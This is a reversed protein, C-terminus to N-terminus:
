TSRGRAASLVAAFTLVIGAVLTWQVTATGVPAVLDIILASSLQGAISVLAFVLVGYRPVAWAATMIFVVGLAGGLYMWWPGTTPATVATGQIAVGIGVAVALGLTGFVFNVWTTSVPQRTVVNTRGNIAQQVSTLAGATVAALVAFLSFDVAGLRGSAAIIVGVATLIAAVLRQPTIAVKGLPGLGSRDVALSSLSQGAVTSVAFLAVGGLAVAFSQSAIFAGGLFGGLTAWWPLQGDRVARPVRLVGQRASPVVLVIVTLIALGTLFSVLAAQVGNAMHRALEGNVRAQLSTTLGSCILIVLLSGADLRRQSTSSM